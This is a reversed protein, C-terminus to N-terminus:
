AIVLTTAPNVYRIQWTTNAVICKLEISSYQNTTMISGLVSTNTAGGVIQQSGTLNIRWGGAGINDILLVDGVVSTSPLALIIQSGKSCTHQNNVVLTSDVNLNLNNYVQIASIDVYDNILIRSVSGDFHCTYYYNTTSDFYYQGEFTGSVTAVGNVYTASTVNSISAFDRSIIDHTASTIGVSNTEFMRNTSGSLLPFYLNGGLSVVIWRLETADYKLHLMQNNAHQLNQGGTLIRESSTTGTTYENYITLTVGTDNFVYLDKGNVADTISALGTTASNTLRVYQVQASPMAIIIGATGISSPNALMTALQDTTIDSANATSGTNNAKITSAAMQAAKANTVANNAITGVGSTFIVDGTITAFDRFMINSWAGSNYYRYIIGTTYATGGITATGARVLVIFGKGQVGTPDTYTASATNIYYKDIAATLSGTVETALTQFSGGISLLASGDKRLYSICKWSGAGNSRFVAEDGVATTINASTPLDLNASHVLPTIAAFKVRRIAGEAISDFGTITTTSTITINNSASAGIAPTAGTLSVSPAYNLAGTLTGGNLKLYLADFFAKIKQVLWWANFPTLASTQELVVPTTQNTNDFSAEVQAQSAQTLSSGGSGGIEKWINTYADFVYTLGFVKGSSTGTDVRFLCQRFYDTDNSFRNSRVREFISLGSNWIYTGNESSVTQGVLLAVNYTANFDFGDVTSNTLVQNTTSARYVQFYSTTADKFENELKVSSWTQSYSTISDDIVAGTSIVPEEIVADGVTIFGLLVETLPDIAYHSPSTSPTGEHITIANTNDAIIDYYKFDGGTPCLTIEASVTDGAKTYESTPIYWTGNTVRIQKNTAVPTGSFTEVTIVCGSVIGALRDQKSNLATALETNNYPSDTLDEFTSSGGGGGGSPKWKASDNYDGNVNDAIAIYENFDADRGKFGLPYFVNPLVQLLPVRMTQDALDKIRQGVNFRSISFPLTKDEISTKVSKKFLDLLNLM